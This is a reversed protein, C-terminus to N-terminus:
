LLLEDIWWVFIYGTVRFFYEVFYIPIFYDLGGGSISKLLPKLKNVRHKVTVNKRSVECEPFYLLPFLKRQNSYPKKYGIDGEIKYSNM